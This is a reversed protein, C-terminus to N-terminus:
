NSYVEIFYNNDELDSNNSVIDIITDINELDNTTKSQIDKIDNTKINKKKTFENINKSLIKLKRKKMKECEDLIIRKDRLIWNNKNKKFININSQNSLRILNNMENKM